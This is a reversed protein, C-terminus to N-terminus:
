TKTVLEALRTSQAASLQQREAAARAMLTVTDIRSLADPTGRVWSAHLRAFWLDVGEVRLAGVFRTDTVDLIAAWKVIVQLYAESVDASYDTPDADASALLVVRAAAPVSVPQSAATVASKAPPMIAYLAVETMQAAKAQDMGVIAPLIDRPLKELFAIYDSVMVAVQHRLFGITAVVQAAFLEQAPTLQHPPM